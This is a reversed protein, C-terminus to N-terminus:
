GTTGTSPPALKAAEQPAAPASAAPAPHAAATSPPSLVPGDLKPAAAGVEEIVPALPDKPFEIGYSKYDLDTM